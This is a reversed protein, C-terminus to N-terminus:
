VEGKRRNNDCDETKGEKRKRWIEGRNTREAPGEEQSGSGVGGMGPGSSKNTNGEHNNQKAWSPYFRQTSTVLGEGLLLKIYDYHWSKENKIRGKSLLQKVAEAKVFCILPEYFFWVCFLQEQQFQETREKLFQKFEEIIPPGDKSLVCMFMRTLDGPINFFRPEIGPLNQCCQKRWFSYKIIVLIGVGLLVLAICLLM